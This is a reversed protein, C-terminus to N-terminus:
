KTQLNSLSDDLHKFYDMTDDKQEITEDFDESNLRRNVQKKIRLFPEVKIQNDRKKNSSGM